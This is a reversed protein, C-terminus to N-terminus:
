AVKKAKERKKQLLWSHFHMSSVIGLPGGLLYASVNIWSTDMNPVIRFLLLNSIGIGLSTIMSMARYGQNVNLSQFGLLFVILYTSAFLSLATKYEM